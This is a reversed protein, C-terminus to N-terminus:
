KGKAGPVVQTRGLQTGAVPVKTIKVMQESNSTKTTPGSSAPYQSKPTPTSLSTDGNNM